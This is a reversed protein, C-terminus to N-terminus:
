LDVAYPSPQRPYPYKPDLPRNRPRLKPYHHECEEHARELYNGHKKYVLDGEITGSLTMLTTFTSMIKRYRVMVDRPILAGLWRTPSSRDMDSVGPFYSLLEIKCEDVAYDFVEAAKELNQLTMANHFMLTYAPDTRKLDLYPGSERPKNIMAVNFQNMSEPAGWHNLWRRRRGEFIPPVGYQEKEQRLRVQERFAENVANLMLQSIPLWEVVTSCSIHQADRPGLVYLRVLNGRLKPLPILNPVGGPSAVKWDKQGALNLASFNERNVPHLSQHLPAVKYPKGERKSRSIEKASEELLIKREKLNGFCVSLRAEGKEFALLKHIMNPDDLGPLNQTGQPCVGEQAKDLKLRDDPTIETLEFLQDMSELKDVSIHTFHGRLHATVNLLNWLTDKQYRSMALPLRIVVYVPETLTSFPEPMVLRDPGWVFIPSFSRALPYIWRDVRMYGKLPERDNADEYNVVILPHFGMIAGVQGNQNIIYMYVGQIRIVERGNTKLKLKTSEM